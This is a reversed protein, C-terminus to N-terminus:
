PSRKLMALPSLSLQSVVSRRSSLATISRDEFRSIDITLDRSHLTFPDFRVALRRLSDVFSLRHHGQLSRLYVYPYGWSYRVNRPINLGQAWSSPKLLEGIQWLSLPIQLFIAFTLRCVVCSTVIM